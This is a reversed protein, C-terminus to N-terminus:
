TMATTTAIAHTEKDSFAWFDLPKGAKEWCIRFIDSDIPGRRNDPDNDDYAVVSAKMGLARSFRIINGLTLNGPHNLVQSIYGKTLGMRKALDDQSLKKTEMKKELQEIFDSAIRYLFDGISQETWHDEIEKKNLTNM